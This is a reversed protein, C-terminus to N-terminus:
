RSREEAEKKLREMTKRTSLLTTDKQEETLKPVRIPTGTKIFNPNSLKDKNADYIYVWYIKNGYYRKAMWALRSDKHMEETKYFGVYKVEEVQEPKEAKPEEVIPAVTETDQLGDGTVPLGKGSEVKETKLSELWETMQSRMFFYGGFLLMLLIVVCILTDRWFHYKKPEKKKREKKKPEVVPKVEEVVTKVEEVVPEVPKVEEVVPEIHKKTAKKVNKTRLGKDKTRQGDDKTRQGKDKTRRGKEPSQGLEGLLGVIEEAQEGLKKLPDIAEKEQLGDGTMRLGDGTVRLGNNKEVQEKVSAEPSFVVKNYGDIVIAEGTSVNVSKRPAVAQLKFTGLGNIKVSQESKLGAIIQNNLASLFSGAEKESVGARKALQRRLDTWSLKEAM